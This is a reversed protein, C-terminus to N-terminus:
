ARADRIRSHRPSAEGSRPSASAHRSLKMLFRGCLGAAVVPSAARALWSGHKWYYRWASRHFAVLAKVPVFASSRATGHMVATTPAYMTTWGAAGARRCFDADEWYLFFGQDFGGVADFTARRILAFAGTVWDVVTPSAPRGSLNRRSLANGPLHRSLWSTRGAIATTVDPFRRASRQLTGEPELLVGGIVGARPHANLVAALQGTVPGSLVCDPNLLLLDTGAAAHRAALNVGAAFGNNTPCPVYTVRPYRAALAQGAAADADHDVVVVPVSPEHTSLSALCRDLEAYARYGVILITPRVPSPLDSAHM